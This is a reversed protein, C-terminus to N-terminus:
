ILESILERPMTKHFWILLCASLGEWVIVVIAEEICFQHLILKHRRSSIVYEWVAILVDLSGLSEQRDLLSRIHQPPAGLGRPGVGGGRWERRSGIAQTVM